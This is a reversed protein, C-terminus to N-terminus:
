GEWRETPPLEMRTVFGKPEDQARKKGKFKVELQDAYRTLQERCICGTQGDSGARGDDKM